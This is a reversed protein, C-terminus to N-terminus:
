LGGDGSVCRRNRSLEHSNTETRVGVKRAVAATLEGVDRARLIDALEDVDFEIALANEIHSLATVLTLSDINSALLPTSDHLSRVDLAAADAVAERVLSAIREASADL